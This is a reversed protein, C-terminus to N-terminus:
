ILQIHHKIKHLFFQFKLILTIVVVLGNTSNTKEAYETLDRAKWFILVWYKEVDEMNGEEHPKRHELQEFYWM